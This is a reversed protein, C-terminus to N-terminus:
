DSTSNGGWWWWYWWDVVVVDGGGDDDNGGDDDDGDCVIKQRDAFNFKFWDSVMILVTYINTPKLKKM